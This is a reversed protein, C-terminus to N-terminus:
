FLCLLQPLQAPLVRFLLLLALNLRNCCRGPELDDLFGVVLGLLEYLGVRLVLLVRFLEAVLIRAVAWPDVRAGFFGVLRVEDFISIGGFILRVVVVLPCARYIYLVAGVIGDRTNLTPLVSGGLLECCNGEFHLM